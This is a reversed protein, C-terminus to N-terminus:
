PLNVDFGHFSAHDFIFYLVYCAGRKLTFIAPECSGPLPIVDEYKCGRNLTKNVFQSTNTKQGPPRSALSPNCNVGGLGFMVFLVFSLTHARTYHLCHHYRHHLIVHNPSPARTRSQLWNWNHRMTEVMREPKIRMEDNALICHHIMVDHFAHLM